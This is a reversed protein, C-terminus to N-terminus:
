YKPKSQNCDRVWGEKHLYVKVMANDRLTCCVIMCLFILKHNTKTRVMVKGLNVKCIM